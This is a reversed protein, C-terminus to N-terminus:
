GAGAFFYAQKEGVPLAFTRLTKRVVITSFEIKQPIYFKV